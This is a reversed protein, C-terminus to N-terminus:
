SVGEVDLVANATGVASLTPNVVTAIGDTVGRSADDANGTSGGVDGFSFHKVQGWALSGVATVLLALGTKRPKTATAKRPPRRVTANAYVVGVTRRKRASQIGRHERHGSHIM